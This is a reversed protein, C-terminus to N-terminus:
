KKIMLKLITSLDKLSFTKKNKLLNDYTKDPFTYTKVKNSSNKKPFKKKLREYNTSNIIKTQSLYGKLIISFLSKYKINIKKSLKLIRGEDINLNPELICTRFFNYNQVMLQFYLASGRLIRPDAEHFNLILNNINLEKKKLIHTTSSFIIYNKKLNIKKWFKNDPYEKLKFYNVKNNKCLHEIDSKFIKSIFNFVITQFITYFLYIKSYKKYLKLFLIM